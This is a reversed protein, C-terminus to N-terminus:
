IRINCIATVVLKYSQNCDKCTFESEIHDKNHYELGIQTSFVSNCELCAFVPSVNELQTQDCILLHKQLGYRTNYTEGCRCDCPTMMRDILVLHFLLVM